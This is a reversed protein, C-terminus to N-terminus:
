YSDVNSYFVQSSLIFGHFTLLSFFATKITIIKIHYIGHGYGVIIFIYNASNRLHIYAIGCFHKRLIRINPWGMLWIFQILAGFSLKAPAPKHPVAGQLSWRVIHRLHLKSEDCSKFCVTFPPFAPFEKSVYFLILKTSIVSISTSWVDSGAQRKGEAPSAPFVGETWAIVSMEVLAPYNSSDACFRVYIHHLCAYLLSASLSAFPCQSEFACKHESTYIHQSLM